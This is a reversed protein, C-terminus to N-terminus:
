LTVTNHAGINQMAAKERTHCTFLISQYKRQSYKYIQTLIKEMRNDDMRVFSEDFLFPPVSKQYLLEILAMRLCIYALDSTGASMSTADHMLKGDSFSLEFETDLGITEYKGETMSSFLKSASKALKSSIGERLKGSATNLTEIALTYAKWKAKLEAIEQDIVAIEEAIATPDTSVARLASLQVEIQHIRATYTESTDSLATLEQKREQLRFSEMAQEDYTAQRAERIYEKPYELLDNEINEITSRHEVMRIEIERLKSQTALCKEIAKALSVPANEYIRFNVDQLIAVIESCLANFEEERVNLMAKKEDQVERLRLMFEEDKASAEILEKVEDYTKCGFQTCVSEIEMAYDHKKMFFVYASATAFLLCATVSLYKFLDPFSPNNRLILTLIISFVSCLGFILAILNCRGMKIQDLEMNKVLTDRHEADRAGIEAFMSLKGAMRDIKKSAESLERQADNCRAAGLALENQKQELMRVFEPDSIDVNEHEIPNKMLRFEEEAKALKEKEGQRLVYSKKVCYREYEALEDQVEKMRKKFYVSKENLIRHTGELSIIDSENTQAKELRPDIMKRKEELDFIKGGDKSQNLLAARAGDLKSLALSTNLRENGSFIINEAENGITYNDFQTNATQRIYATNEFVSASVGFFVDGPSQGKFCIMNTEADYIGLTERFAYKKEETVFRTVEREIRYRKGNKKTKIVISGSATANDWSLYRMKESNNSPLGYFIFRIFACVTSKGSENAGEIINVGDTFSIKKGKLKGFSKIYLSEFTM